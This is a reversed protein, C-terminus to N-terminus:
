SRIFIFSNFIKSQVDSTYFSYIGMEVKSSVPYGGVFYDFVISSYNKRNALIRM